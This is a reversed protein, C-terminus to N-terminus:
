NETKLGSQQDLLRKHDNKLDTYATDAAQLKEQLSNVSSELRQITEQAEALQGTQDAVKKELAAMREKGAAMEQGTNTKIEMLDEGLAAIEKEKDHLAGQLAAIQKEMNQKRSEMEGIIQQASELERAAQKSSSEQGAITDRAQVLEKEYAAIRQEFRTIKQDRSKVAQDWQRSQQFYIGVMLVAISLLVILLDHVSEKIESM